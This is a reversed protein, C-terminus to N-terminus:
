GAEFRESINQVDRRGDVLVGAFDGVLFLFLFLGLDLGGFIAERVGARAVGAIVLKRSTACIIFAESEM